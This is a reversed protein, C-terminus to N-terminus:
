RAGGLVLLARRVADAKREDCADHPVSALVRAALDIRNQHNM